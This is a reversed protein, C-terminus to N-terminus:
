LTPTFQWGPEELHPMDGFHRGAYLGFQKEGIDAITAFKDKISQPQLAWPTRPDFEDPWFDGAMGHGHASDKAVKAKSIGLLFAQLQEGDDRNGGPAAVRDFPPDNHAVTIVFPGNDAWWDAFQLVKASRVGNLLERRLLMLQGGDNASRFVGAAAAVVGAAILGGAAIVGVLIM